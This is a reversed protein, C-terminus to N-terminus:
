RHHHHGGGYGGNGGYSGYSSGRYGSGISISLGPRGYYFGTTPYGYGFSNVAGYSYVPASYVPTSYYSPTYGYSYSPAYSYGGGYFGGRCGGSMHDAKAESASSVVFAVAVLAVLLMLKKM